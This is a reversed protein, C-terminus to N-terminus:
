VQAGRTGGQQSAAIQWLPPANQWSKDPPPAAMVDEEPKPQDILNLVVM